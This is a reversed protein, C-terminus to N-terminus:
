PYIPEDNADLLVIAACPCDKAVAYLSAQDMTRGNPDIVTSLKEEDLKFVSPANAACCGTGICRSRDVTVKIASVQM